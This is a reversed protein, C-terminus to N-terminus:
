RALPVGAGALGGQRDIYAQLHRRGGASREAPCRRARSWTRGPRRVQASSYAATGTLSAIFAVFKKALDVNKSSKPIYAAGPMWITAGAKTADDGPIGFFGIKQECPGDALDGVAFTLM